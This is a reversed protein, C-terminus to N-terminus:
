LPKVTKGIDAFCFSIRSKGEDYIVSFWRHKSNVLDVTGSVKRRIGESGAGSLCEFPDFRVKQGVKIM